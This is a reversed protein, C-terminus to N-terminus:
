REGGAEAEGLEKEARFHVSWFMSAINWLLFVSMLYMLGCIFLSVISDISASDKPTRNSLLGAVFQGCLRLIDAGLHLMVSLMSAAGVM